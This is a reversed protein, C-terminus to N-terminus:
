TKVYYPTAIYPRSLAASRGFKENTLPFYTTKTYFNKPIYTKSGETKYFNKTYVNEVWRDSIELEAVSNICYMTCLSTYINNVYFCQTMKTKEKRLFSPFFYADAIMKGALRVRVKIPRFAPKGMEDWWGRMM